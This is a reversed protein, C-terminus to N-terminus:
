ATKKNYNDMIQKYLIKNFLGWFDNPLLGTVAKKYNLNSFMKTRPDMDKETVFFFISFDVLMLLHYNENYSYVSYLGGPPSTKIRPKMMCIHYPPFSTKDPLNKLLDTQKSCLSDDLIKRLVEEVVKSLQFSQFDYLLSASCRWIISYIFLNFLAPPLKEWTLLAGGPNISFKDPHDPFAYLESFRNSFYTEIVGFRKECATCFIHDEKPTDQMKRWKADQKQLMLSHRPSTLDYLGKALFKPIIHSNKKDAPHQQCLKCLPLEPEM